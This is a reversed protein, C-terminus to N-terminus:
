KSAFIIPFLNKKSHRHHEQVRQKALEVDRMCIAEFLQQHENRIEGIRGMVLDETRFRLFIKRCLEEYRRTLLDNGTMALIALHFETDLIFMKRTVHTSISKEYAIKSQEM